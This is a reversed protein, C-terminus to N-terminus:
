ADAAPENKPFYLIRGCNPCKITKNAHMVKQVVHLPLRASCGGCHQGPKIPVVGIGRKARRIQEYQRLLMADVDAALVNRKRTITAQKNDIAKLRQNEQDELADLEPKLTDIDAQILELNAVLQELREMLPLTDEELEQIRTGFQLEQNQYQSAEKSSSANFAADAASHKLNALNALEMENERVSARVQDHKVTVEQHHQELDRYKQRAALLTEPVNDKEGALVDIDLDYTQVRNLLELMYGGVALM